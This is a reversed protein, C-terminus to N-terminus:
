STEDAVAKLKPAAQKKKAQRASREPEDGTKSGGPAGPGAVRCHAGPDLTWDADDKGTSIQRETYMAASPSIPDSAPFTQDLADDLLEQYTPLKDEFPRERSELRAEESSPLGSSSPSSPKM